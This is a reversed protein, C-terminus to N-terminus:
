AAEPESDGGLEVEVVPRPDPAERAGPADTPQSARAPTACNTACGGQLRYTM